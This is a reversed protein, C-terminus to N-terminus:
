VFAHRVPSPGLPLNISNTSQSREEGDALFLLIGNCGMWGESVMWDLKGSMTSVSGSYLVSRSVWCTGTVSGTGSDIGAISGSGAAEDM